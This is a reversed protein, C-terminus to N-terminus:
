EATFNSLSWLTMRLVHESEYYLLEQVKKLYGSCIAHNMVTTTEDCSFMNGILKLAEIRLGPEATGLVQVVRAVLDM